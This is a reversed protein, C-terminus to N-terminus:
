KLIKFESRRNLALDSEKCDQKDCDCNILPLPESEGLGIAELRYASVGKKIMYSMIYDARKQSLTLNYNENGKCDTHARIQIRVDEYKLLTGIINNLPEISEEVLEPSNYKYTLNVLVSPDLDELIAEELENEPKETYVEDIEVTEPPDLIFDTSMLRQNCDTNVGAVRYTAPEKAIYTATKGKKVMVDNKYWEFVDFNEKNKVKLTLEGHKYYFISGGQAVLIPPANFGSFYTAAGHAEHHNTMCVTIANDSRVMIHDLDEPVKYKLTAWGEDNGRINSASSFLTKHIKNTKSNIIEVESNKKAIIEIVANGGLYHVSPISVTNAVSCGNLPPIFNLGSTAPNKSGALTQYVYINESSEIYMNQEETFFSGNIIYYDGENLVTEINEGNIKVITRDKTAVIVPKELKNTGQGKMIIYKKNTKEIPVIQDAGIDNGRNLPSVALISGVTVVIPKTSSIDTGFSKNEDDFDFDSAFESISYSEYRNLLVTHTLTTEQKGSKNDTPLGRFKVGKKIGSFTIKTNNSTAMVSIFNNRTELKVKDNEVAKGLVMHGSKFKTGLASTGKSTLSLTQAPAKSRLNAFLPFDAVVRLGKNPLIKNLEDKGIAICPGFDKRRYDGFVIKQPSDSSINVKKVAVKSSGIYISVTFTTDIPTSLFLTTQGVNSASSMTNAYIPPLYHKTSLQAKLATFALLSLTFCLLKRM